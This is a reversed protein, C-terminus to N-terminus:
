QLLPFVRQLQNALQRKASAMSSSDLTRAITIFFNRVMLWNAAANRDTQPAKDENFVVEKVWHLQNEIRWRGRIIHHFQEADTVISSIYHQQESFSKGDRYGHRHVMICSQIGVWEHGFAAVADFVSM